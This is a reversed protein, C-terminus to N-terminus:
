VYVSLDLTITNMHEGNYLEQYSYEPGLLVNDDFYSRQASFILQNRIGSSTKGFTPSANSLPMPINAANYSQGYTVNFNTNKGALTLAYVLGAYWAGTNVNTGNKNFDEATTTSSWGGQIQWIGGLMAYALNADFNIVGINENERGVSKLFQPISSNGAGAINFVYGANFGASLNETLADAYFLGTSFNARKDDSGFVAVNANITDTKYNVSVNTVKDPSLFEDIIGSSWPGGGGYSGVSLKSRGATIFFPSTDLNGFIVFANGLGFGGSENTDFDFQATVYHGLNSLFYLKANTLYINEGTASFNTGSIRQISSGFWTQADAEIYGGFFVSYDDFKDRQGLLTSAFLNSSIMGVPITNNGSYSGLYSVQGRTTIAPTGGVDIGNNSAFVGGSQSGSVEISNGQTISLSIDEPDIESTKLTGLDLYNETSGLNGGVKSSYTAFQSSGGSTNRINGQQSKLQNVQGQLLQVQAQLQLLLEKENLHQPTSTSSSESSSGTLSLDQQGISTAGLPGGQSVVETNQEAYLNTGFILSLFAIKLMKSKFTYSM